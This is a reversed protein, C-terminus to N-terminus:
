YRGYFLKVPLFLGTSAIEADIPILTQMGGAVNSCQLTSANSALFLFYIPYVEYYTLDRSDPPNRVNVIWGNM